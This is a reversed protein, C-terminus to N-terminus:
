LLLIALIDANTGTVWALQCWSHLNQLLLSGQAQPGLDKM